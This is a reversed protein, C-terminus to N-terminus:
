FVLLDIIINNSVLLCLTLTITNISFYRCIKGFFVSREDFCILDVVDTTKSNSCCFYGVFGNITILHYLKRNVCNDLM